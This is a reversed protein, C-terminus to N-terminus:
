KERQGVAARRSSMAARGHEGDCALVHLLREVAKIQM